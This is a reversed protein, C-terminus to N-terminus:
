RYGHFYDTIVRYDPIGAAILDKTLQEVLLEPGSLYYLNRADPPAAQLIADATLPGVAGQYEASPRKVISTYSLPYRAWLEQYLLSDPSGAAQILSVHREEHTDALWTVMSRIPTVGIGAAVLVLPITKDKPLVFDGMPDAAQIVTGPQLNALQRKFSSGEHAAMKTTISVLSETPSSSITFWRRLGRTDAADHPLFLETFQGAVYDVPREPKFWFTLMRAGVQETHDLTWHQM